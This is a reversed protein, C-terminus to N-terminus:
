SISKDNYLMSIISLYFFFGQQICIYCQPIGVAKEWVNVVCTNGVGSSPHVKIVCCPFTLISTVPVKECGIGACREGGGPTRSVAGSWGAM